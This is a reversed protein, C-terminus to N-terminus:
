VAVRQSVSCASYLECAGGAQSPSCRPFAAVADPAACARAGGSAPQVWQQQVWVRVRVRLLKWAKL